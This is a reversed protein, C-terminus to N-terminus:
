SIPHDFSTATSDTDPKLPLVVEFCVGTPLNMARITGHHELIYSYSISLGLGTGKGPDKTTFFPDFIRSINDEPIPPGNNTIRIIAKNKYKETHLIIEKYDSTLHENVAFIANDVINMLVQHIWGEFVMVEDRLQYEKRIFLGSSIKSSLFLLVNDLVQNLNTSKMVPKARSSFLTLAKVINSARELGSAIMSVAERFQENKEAAGSGGTDNELDKILQIVGHIFNLPNNIEHAIGATLTGLSAMKEAQIL